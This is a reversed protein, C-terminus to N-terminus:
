GGEVTASSTGGDGKGGRCVDGVPIVSKSEYGYRDEPDAKVKVLMRVLSFRCSIAKEMYVDDIEGPELSVHPWMFTPRAQPGWKAETRELCRGIRGSADAAEYNIDEALREFIMDSSSSPDRALSGGAKLASFDAAVCSVEIKRSGKNEILVVLSLLVEKQRRTAPGLPFAQAKVTFALKPQDRREIWYLGGAALLAIVSVLGFLGQGYNGLKDHHSKLVFFLIGIFVCAILLWVRLDLGGLM